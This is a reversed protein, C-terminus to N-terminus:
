EKVEKEFAEKEFCINRYAEDHSLGKLRGIVYHIVYILLFLPVGYKRYQEVHVMEHTFTRYSVDDDYYFIHSGLTVGEANLLKPLWHNYHEKVM